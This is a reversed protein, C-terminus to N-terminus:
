GFERYKSISKVGQALAGEKGAIQGPYEVVGGNMNICMDSSTLSQPELNGTCIERWIAM